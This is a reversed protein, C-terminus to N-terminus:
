EDNREPWLYHLAALAYIKATEMLQDLDIWEDVQHPVQRDGAGMTVIPINKLAWLFTGDTAGPVGAYTPETGSVQRTAWDAAAVVPDNRDSFDLYERALSHTDVERGHPMGDIEIVCPVTYPHVREVENQMEKADAQEKALRARENALDLGETTMRNSAVSRIYKIYQERVEDLNYEQKNRKKVVGRAVLDTFTRTNMSLYNACETSSAVIKAGTM